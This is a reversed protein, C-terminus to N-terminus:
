APMILLLIVRAVNSLLRRNLGRSILGAALAEVGRGGAGRACRRSAEGTGGM